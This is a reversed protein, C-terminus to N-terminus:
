VPGLASWLPGPTSDFPGRIGANALEDDWTSPKRPHGARMIAAHRCALSTQDNRIKGLWCRWGQWSSRAAGSLPRSKQKQAHPRITRFNRVIPRAAEVDVWKGLTYHPRHRSIYGSLSAHTRLSEIHPTFLTGHAGTWPIHPFLIDEAPFNRGVRLMITFVQLLPACHLLAARIM